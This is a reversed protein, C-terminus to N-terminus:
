TEAVDEEARAQLRRMEVRYWLVVTTMCFVFAPLSLIWIVKIWDPSERYFDILSSAYGM